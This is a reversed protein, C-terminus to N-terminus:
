LRDARELKLAELDSLHTQSLEALLADRARSWAEHMACRDNIECPTGRLVCIDDRTPGEVAEILMLLTITQPRETLAYGGHPGPESSVWGARVLSRMVAPLYTPTTALAAALARGKTPRDGEQSRLLLIARLALDTRKTLELRM